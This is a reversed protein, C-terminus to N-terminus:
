ETRRIVNKFRQVFWIFDNGVFKPFKTFILILVVTLVFVSLIMPLMLVSSFSITIYYVPITIGGIFLAYKFPTIFATIVEKLTKNFATQVLVSM